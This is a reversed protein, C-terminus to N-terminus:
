RESQGPKLRLELVRVRDNEFKVTLGSPAETQARLLSIGLVALALIGLSTILRFPLSLNM